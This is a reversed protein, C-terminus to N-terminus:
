LTEKHDKQERYHVKCFWNGSKDRGYYTPTGCASCKELPEFAKGNFMGCKVCFGGGNRYDRREYEPHDCAKYKLYREYTMKEAEEITKGEGRIFISGGPLIDKPFAEFFATTYAVNNSIETLPDNNRDFVKEISGSKLVLGMDGCQVFCDGPWEKQCLYPDKFSKRAYKGM